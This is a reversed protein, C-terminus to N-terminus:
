AAALADAGLRYKIDYNVIFDLEEPTFGYHRALVADIEDLIPKSLRLWFEDYEVRGTKKSQAVKRVAKRQVDEMLGAGLASLDDRTHADMRNFGAPFGEVYAKGCHFCDGLAIFYVFFTSSNLMALAAARDDKRFRYPKYDDSKKQGDQENWFYPVFDFAKTFMTIVRHVYVPEGSKVM